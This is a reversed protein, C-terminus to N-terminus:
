LILVAFAKMKLSKYSTGPAKSASRSDWSEISALHFLVERKLRNKESFPFSKKVFENKIKESGM